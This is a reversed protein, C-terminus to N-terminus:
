QRRIIITLTAPATIGDLGLLEAGPDRVMPDPLLVQVANLGVLSIGRVGVEPNMLPPSPPPSMFEQRGDTAVRNTSLDGLTATRGSM